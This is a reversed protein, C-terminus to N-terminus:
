SNSRRWWRYRLRRHPTARVPQMQMKGGPPRLDGYRKNVFAVKEDYLAKARVVGSPDKLHEYLYTLALYHIVDEAEAHIRPADTSSVLRQPRRVVRMHVDYESNPPPHLRMSQYGNVDRLRRRYDPIISGDDIFRGENVDNIPM